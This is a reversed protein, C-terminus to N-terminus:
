FWVGSMLRLGATTRDNNKTGTNEFTRGLDHYVVPGFGIFWHPIPHVLIPAVISVYYGYGRYQWDLGGLASHPGTWGKPTATSEREINENSYGLACRLWLSAYRGLPANYGFRLEFSEFTDTTRNTQGHTDYGQSKSWGLDLGVGLSFDEGVFRDYGPSVVVSRAYVNADDFDSLSFGLAFASSIVNTGDRGFRPTAPDDAHSAREEALRRARETPSDELEEASQAFATLPMSAALSAVLAIVAKM